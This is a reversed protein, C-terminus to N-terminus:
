KKVMKVLSVGEESRLVAYYLGEPLSEASWIFSHKGVTMLRDEAKYVMEGISNYIKLQTHSPKTLEYEITTSTNFPNPYTYLSQNIAMEDIGTIIEDCEEFNWGHNPHFPSMFLGVISDEYCRLPGFYEGDYTPFMYYTNGIGEIVKNGFEVVIGDGCTIYQLKRIEGNIDITSTSDIIMFLTSDGNVTWFYPLLISDGAEAGFDYLLHFNGERYFFVSDNESYMYEHYVVTDGWHRDIVKVKKCPIGIITDEAISEFTKFSTIDPNITRQTYHWISGVEAWGQSFGQLSLIAIFITLINKM